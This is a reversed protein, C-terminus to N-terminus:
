IQQHFLGIVNKFGPCLLDEIHPRIERQTGIVKGMQHILITNIEDMKLIIKQRDVFGVKGQFHTGVYWKVNRPSTRSPYDRSYHGFGSCNYCQNDRCDPSIM